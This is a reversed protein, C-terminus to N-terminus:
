RGRMAKRDVRARNPDVGKPVPPRIGGLAKLRKNVASAEEKTLVPKMKTLTRAVKRVSVVGEGGEGVRVVSVPVGPAVRNVKKREAEALRTARGAPGEALLVVGPRGVARFVM